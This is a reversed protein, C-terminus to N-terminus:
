VDRRSMRLAGLGLFALVWATFWAIAPGLSLSDEPVTVMTFANATNAFFYTRLVDGGWSEPVLLLLGPVVLLLAAMTCIAGASNRMLTGLGLGALAVGVLMGITGLVARLVGDDGLSAGADVTGFIAQGVSFAAFVAVAMVVLVNLALVLAKAALAAVRRPAATLTTRIMGTSYEGAITIAGVAAVILTAFQAGVLSLTTFDMEPPAGADDLDTSVGWSLLAGFGVTVVVAGVMTWVVSPVSWFKVWESRVMGAFTLRHEPARYQPIGASNKELTTASM